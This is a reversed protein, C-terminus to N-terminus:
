IIKQGLGLEKKLNISYNPALRKGIMKDVAFLLKLKKIAEIKRPIMIAPEILAMFLMEKGDLIHLDYKIKVAEGKVRNKKPLTSYIPMQKKNYPFPYSTIFTQIKKLVTLDTNTMKCVVNMIKIPNGKKTLRKLTKLRCKVSGEADFFGAIYYIHIGLNANNMPIKEPHYNKFKLNILKTVHKKKESLYPCVKKFFHYARDGTIRTVYNDNWKENSHITKSISSGYVDALAKVPALDCLKLKYTLNKTNKLVQFCGDGDALGAHYAWFGSDIEKDINSLVKKILVNNKKIVDKQILYSKEKNIM